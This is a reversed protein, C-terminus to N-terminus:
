ETLESIMCKQYKDGFWSRETHTFSSTTGCLPMYWSMHQCLRVYEFENNNMFVHRRHVPQQSNTGRLRCVCTTSHPPPTTYQNDPTPEAYAAFAYWISTKWQIPFQLGDIRRLDAETHPSDHPPGHPPGHPSRTPSARVQERRASLGEDPM